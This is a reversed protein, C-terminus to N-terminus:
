LGNGGALGDMRDQQAAATGKAQMGGPADHLIQFFLFDAKVGAKGASPSTRTFAGLRSDLANISPNTDLLASQIASASSFRFFSSSCFFLKQRSDMQKKPPSYGRPFLTDALAKPQENIEKIMFHEYGAKEAQTVDWDITVAEKTTRAGYADYIQIEDKKIVAVENDDLFYVDRTYELIAPVDSAILNEGKGIGVILPSDKRVAVIRDATELFRREIEQAIEEAFGAGVYGDTAFNCGDPVLKAAEKATLVQVAM